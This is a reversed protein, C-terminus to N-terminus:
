SLGDMESLRQEILDCYKKDIESGLYSRGVTKSVKQTTGTGSFPDYVLDGKNSFSKILIDCLLEPYVANHKEGNIITKKREIRLINDLGCRKFTANKITRGLHKDGEMVLILEYGANLIGERSAPLCRKKDWVIIDKIEKNYKGIMKFFAEKSGTVIQFNYIVIKSVRLM